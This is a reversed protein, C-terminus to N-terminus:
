LLAEWACTAEMQAALRHYFEEHFAMRSEWMAQAAPTAFKWRRFAALKEAKSGALAALEKPSLKEPNDYSLFLYIRYVDFRDINDADGISQELVAAPRPHQEPPLTHIRIGYCISDLQERSISLGALFEEAIKASLLGHDAFDEQTKCHVYGVDHLVGGLILAESDLDSEGAIRAAIDAVRLTHPWRYAYQEQSLGAKMRDHVYTLAARVNPTVLGQLYDFSTM